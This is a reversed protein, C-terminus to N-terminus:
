YELGTWPVPDPIFDVRPYHVDVMFDMFLFSALLAFVLLAGGLRSLGRRWFPLVWGLSFPLGSAVLVAQLIQRSDNIEPGCLPGVLPAILLGMILFARVPDSATVAREV